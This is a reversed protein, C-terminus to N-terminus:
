VLCILFPLWINTLKTPHFGNEKMYFFAIDRSKEDFDQYRIFPPNGVIADYNSKGTVKDRYFAFFRSM